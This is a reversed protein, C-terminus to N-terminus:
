DRYSHLIFLILFLKSFMPFWVIIFTTFINVAPINTFLYLGLSFFFSAVFLITKAIYLTRFVKQCCFCIWLFVIALIVVTSCKSNFFKDLIPSVNIM